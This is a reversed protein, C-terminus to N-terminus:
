EVFGKKMWVTLPKVQKSDPTGTAFAMQATILVMVVCILLAKKKM